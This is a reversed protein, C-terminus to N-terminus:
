DAELKDYQRLFSRCFQALSELSFQHADEEAFVDSEFEDSEVLLTYNFNPEKKIWVNYDQGMLDYISITSLTKPKQEYYEEEQIYFKEDTIHCPMKM